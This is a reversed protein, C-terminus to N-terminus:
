IEQIEEVFRKVDMDILYQLNFDPAELDITRGVIKNVDNFHATKMHPDRLSTVIPMTSKITNVKESFLASVDTDKLDADLSVETAQKSYKDLLPQMVAVDIELFQTKVWGECLDIWDRLGCWMNRTSKWSALLDQTVTFDTQATELYEQFNNLDKARKIVNDVDAKMEELQNCAETMDTELTKFKDNQVEKDIAKCERRLRPV